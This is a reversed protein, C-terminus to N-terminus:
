NNLNKRIKRIDEAKILNIEDRKKSLLTNMKESFYKADKVEETNEERENLRTGEKKMNMRENLRAALKEKRRLAIRESLGNSRFDESRDKKEALRKINKALTNLLEQKENVSNSSASKKELISILRAKERKLDTSEEIKEEVKKEEKKPEEIKKESNVKEISEKLNKIEEDKIRVINKLFENSTNLKDIQEVYATLGFSEAIRNYTEIKNKLVSNKQLSKEAAEILSPTAYQLVAEIMDTMNAPEIEDEINEEEIVETSEEENKVAKLEEVDKKLTEIEIKLEENEKSLEEVSLKVEESKEGEEKKEEEKPEEDKVEEEVKEEEVNEEVMEEENLKKLVEKTIETLRVDSVKLKMEEMIYSLKAKLEEFAKKADIAEVNELANHMVHNQINLLFDAFVKKRDSAAVNSMDAIKDFHKKIRSVDNPELVLKDTKPFSKMTM